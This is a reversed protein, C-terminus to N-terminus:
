SARRAVRHRRADCVRCRRHGNSARYTNVDDYPHGDPCHTKNRNAGGLIPSRQMNEARTVPELHAPNVCARNRCLHDLDLGPPVMGVLTTYAVRHAKRMRGGWRFTGYGGCVGAAWLWCEAEPRVKAWFRQPLSIHGLQPM